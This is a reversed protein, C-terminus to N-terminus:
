VRPQPGNLQPTQHHSLLFGILPIETIDRVQLATFIGADGISFDQTEGDAIFTGILYQGQAVNLPIGDITTKESGYRADGVFVQIEYTKGEALNRLTLTGREGSAEWSNSLFLKAYDSGPIVSAPVPKRIDNDMTQSRFRVEVNNHASPHDFLVGCVTTATGNIYGKDPSNGRPTYFSVGYVPRGNVSIDNSGDNTINVPTKWSIEAAHAVGATLVIGLCLRLLNKM